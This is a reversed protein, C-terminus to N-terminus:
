HVLGSNDLIELDEIKLKRVIVHCGNCPQILFLAAEKIM